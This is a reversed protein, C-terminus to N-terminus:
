VATDDDKNERRHFRGPPSNFGGFPEERPEWRRGAPRWIGFMGGQPEAQQEEDELPQFDIEEDGTEAETVPELVEEPLEAGFVAAPEEETVVEEIIVEEVQAVEAVAPEEAVESV